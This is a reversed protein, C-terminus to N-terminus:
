MFICHLHPLTLARMEGWADSDEVIATRSFFDRLDLRKMVSTCVYITAHKM